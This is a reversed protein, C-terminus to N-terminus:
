LLDNITYELAEDDSNDVYIGATKLSTLIDRVVQDQMKFVSSDSGPTVTFLSARRGSNCEEYMYSMEPRFAVGDPVSLAVHVGETGPAVLAVLLQCHQQKPVFPVDPGHQKVWAKKMGELARAPLEKYVLVELLYHTLMERVQYDTPFLGNSDELPVLFVAFPMHESVASDLASKIAGSVAPTFEPQMTKLWGRVDGLTPGGEVVTPILRRIMDAQFSLTGADKDMMFNIAVQDDPYTVWALIQNSQCSFYRFPLTKIWAVFRPATKESLVNVYDYTLPDCSFSVETAETETDGLLQSIALTFGPGLTPKFVISIKGDEHPMVTSYEPMNM